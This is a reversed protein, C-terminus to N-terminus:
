CLYEISRLTTYLIDITPQANPESTVHTEEQRKMVGYISSCWTNWNLKIVARFDKRDISFTKRETYPSGRTEHHTSQNLHKDQSTSLQTTKM